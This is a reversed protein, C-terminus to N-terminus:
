ILPIDGGVGWQQSHQRGSSSDIVYFLGTSPRWVAFDTKGDGDYDGPKHHTQAVASLAMTIVMSFLIALKLTNSRRTKMRDEKHFTTQPPVAIVNADQEIIQTKM